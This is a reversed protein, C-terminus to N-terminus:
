CSPLLEAAWARRRAPDVVRTPERVVRELEYGFREPSSTKQGLHRHSQRLLTSRASPPDPEVFPPYDWIAPTLPPALPLAPAASDNASTAAAIPPNTPGGTVCECAMRRDSGNPLAPPGGSSQISSARMGSPSEPLSIQM